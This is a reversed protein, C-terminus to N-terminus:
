VYSRTRDSYKYLKVESDSVYAIFLCIVIHCNIVLLFLTFMLVTQRRFGLFVLAVESHASDKGLNSVLVERM